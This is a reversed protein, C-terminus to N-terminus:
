EDDADDDMTDLADFLRDVWRQATVVSRTRARKHAAALADVVLEELAPPVADRIVGGAARLVRRTAEPIRGEDPDGPASKKRPRKPPTGAKAATAEQEAQDVASVAMALWPLKDSMEKMRAQCTAREPAPAGPDTSRRRLDRYRKVPDQM